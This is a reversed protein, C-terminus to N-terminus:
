HAADTSGGDRRGMDRLAEREREVHKIMREELRALEGNEDVEERWELIKRVRDSDGQGQATGARSQSSLADLIPRPIPTSHSSSSIPEALAPRSPRSRLRLGLSRFSRTSPALSISDAPPTIDVELQRTRNYYPTPRRQLTSSAPPPPESYYPTVRRQLTTPTTCDRGSEIEADIEQHFTADTEFPLPPLISDAPRATSELRPATITSSRSRRKISNSRYRSEKVSAPSDILVCSSGSPM